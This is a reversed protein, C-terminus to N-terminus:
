AKPDKDAAANRQMQSMVQFQRIAMKRDPLPRIRPVDYGHRQMQAALIPVLRALENRSLEREWRASRTKDIGKTGYIRWDGLGIRMGDGAMAGALDEGALPDLGLHAHIRSMVAVPDAVLDEFRYEICADSNRAIFEDLAANRDVWARAYAALESPEASIWPRMEDLQVGIERTLDRMSLVVDLPHRRVCIFKAHGAFLQELRDLHFIDFATKEVMVPRNDAIRRHLGLALDRLAGLTQDEPIGCFMTGALVGVPLSDTKDEHLFRACATTIYTEPPCSIQTHRDLLRSLLTTGSRPFGLVLAFTEGTPETM